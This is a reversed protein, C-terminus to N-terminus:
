PFLLLCAVYEYEWRHISSTLVLKEGWFNSTYSVSCKVKEHSYVKAVLFSFTKEKDKWPLGLYLLPLFFFFDAQHNVADWDSYDWVCMKLVYVFIHKHFRNLLLNWCECGENVYIAKNLQHKSTINLLRFEYEQSFEGRFALENTIFVVNQVTFSDLQNCQCSMKMKRLVNWSEFCPM